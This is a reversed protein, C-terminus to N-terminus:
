IGVLLYEEVKNRVADKHTGFHYQHPKAFVQVSSKYKKMLKVLHELDPFGNSSYSLVQISEAFHRFMKDFAEMASSKYSFPTFPKKIKKVKTEEMIECGDWYCSLGELFHYRKMYCNDDSRPVYPPDMYVLDWGQPTSFADARESWCKKGNNFVAANCVALQEVFHEKLSLQLDRRGDKYREPDGAVTFVGRPQRKMCSRILAAKALLRHEVSDLKSVNWSVLDLFTLDDQSFFIGEFTRQILKRAKQDHRLLLEVHDECIQADSNGIFAGALVTPFNLFDASYVQKDMAKLLYGVSGSGSFVDAATSFQLNSLVGHIWPLLRFKNGMYRFRPLYDMQGPFIDSGFRMVRLPARADSLQPFRHLNPTM